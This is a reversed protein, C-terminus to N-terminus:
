RQAKLAEDSGGRAVLTINALRAELLKMRRQYREECVNSVSEGDHVTVVDVSIISRHIAPLATALFDDLGEHGDGVELTTILQIHKTM